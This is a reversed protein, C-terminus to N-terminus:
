YAAVSEATCHWPSEAPRTGFHGGRGPAAANRRGADGEEVEADEKKERTWGRSIMGDLGLVHSAEHRKRMKTLLKKRTIRRM